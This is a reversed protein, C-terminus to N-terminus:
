HMEAKRRKKEEKAVHLSKAKTAELEEVEKRERERELEARRAAEVNDEEIMKNLTELDIFDDVNISPSKASQGSERRPTAQAPPVVPPAPMPEPPVAGRMHKQLPAVEEPSSSEEEERKRAQKGEKKPKKVPSRMINPQRCFSMAADYTLPPPLHHITGLAYYFLRTLILPVGLALPLKKKSKSTGSLRSGEQIRYINCLVHDSWDVELTDRDLFAKTFHHAMRLEPMTYRQTHAMGFFQM